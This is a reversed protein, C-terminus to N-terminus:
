PLSLFSQLYQYYNITIWGDRDADLAAFGKTVQRLVVCARVFNDFTIGPPTWQDASHPASAHVDYKRQLIDLLQPTVKFDLHTLAKQLETRDITGSRDRDFRAFVGQWDKICRWLGSFEDFGIQGNRNTDFLNILLNITNLDFPTFDGNILASQLEGADIQGSQDEDVADFLEWLRPDAGPPSPRPTSSSSDALFGGPKRHGVPAPAGDYDDSYM